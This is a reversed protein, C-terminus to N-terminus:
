LEKLMARQLQKDLFAAPLLSLLFTMVAHPWYPYISKKNTGSMKLIKKAFVTADPRMFSVPKKNSGTHVSGVLMSVVSTNELEVSLSQSFAHNYAKTGAYVSLFPPPLISTYSSINIILTPPKEKTLLSRTLYTPFLINLNVTKSIENDAFNNLPSIPGIGVNNVLVTVPLAKILSVDLMPAQGGDQCITIVERGLPMANIQHKLADLKTQNKGHIVLNFGYAALEIATAKGIGDTAGTVMAYAGSSLHRKLSSPRIYIYIFSLLRYSYYALM